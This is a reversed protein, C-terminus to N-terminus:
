SAPIRQRPASRQVVARYLSLYQRAMRAATFRLEFVERCHRRELHSVRDVAQVAESLTSAAFGAIGEAISEQAALPGCRIIPTGSALAEIATLEPNGRRGALQLLAVADGLLENRRGEELDGVLAVHPDALLPAIEARFYNENTESAKSAIRIRRGSRRAIEIARDIGEGPCMSGVVALYGGRGERFGFANPPIGYPITASWPLSPLRARQTDSVAVLPIGCLSGAGSPRGSGGAHLTAVAPLGCRWAAPVAARNLHLHVIECGAAAAADATAGAFLVVEHGERVLEETLYSVVRGRSERFDIPRPKEFALVQAIRM